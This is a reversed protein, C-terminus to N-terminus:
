VAAIDCCTVTGSVFNNANAAPPNVVSSTNDLILIDVTPLSSTGFNNVPGPQAWAATAANCNLDCATNLHFRYSDALTLRYVGQSVRSVSQIFINLPSPALTPPNGADVFFKFGLDREAPVNGKADYMTRDAM